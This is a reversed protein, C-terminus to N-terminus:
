QRMPLKRQQGIRAKETGEERVPNKAAAHRSLREIQRRHGVQGGIAPYNVAAGALSLKCIATAAALLKDLGEVRALAFGDLVQSPHLILNILVILFERLERFEGVLNLREVKEPLAVHIKEIGVPPAFVMHARDIARGYLILNLLDLACHGRSGIVVRPPQVLGVQFEKLLPQLSVVVDLTRHLSDFRLKLGDFAEEAQDVILHYRHRRRLM